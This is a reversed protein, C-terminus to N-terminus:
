AHQHAANQVIASSGPKAKLYTGLTGFAKSKWDLSNFRETVIKRTM